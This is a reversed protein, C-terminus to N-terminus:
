AASVHSGKRNIIISVVLGGAFASFLVIPGAVIAWAATAAIGDHLGILFHIVLTIAAAVVAPTGIRGLDLRSWRALTWVVGGGLSALGLMVLGIM